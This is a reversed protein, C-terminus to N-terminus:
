EIIAKSVLDIVKLIRRVPLYKGTKQMRRYNHCQSCPIDDREPALGELMRSAYSYKEGEVVASLGQEFANGFDGWHNVCCGLVRGDYNIQPTRFLQSCVEAQLYSEDNRKEYDSRNTSGTGSESRILDAYSSEASPANETDWALKLRFQMSLSNALEKAQEIEHENHNFVIFQWTLRPNSSRYRLKCENIKGINELVVSLRGGKRYRRYTEDTAGDISCTIEGFRYRVLGEAVSDPLFNLNVGNGATLTVGRAHAYEMMKLLDPNLFIEGWNSLEISKIQPEDDLLRKFREFKL